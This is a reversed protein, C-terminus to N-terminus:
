GNHIVSYSALVIQPFGSNYTPEMFEEMILAARTKGSNILVSQAYGLVHRRIGEPNQSRLGQLTHSIKKWSANDNLLLRCLEISQNEEEEISETIKLRHEPKAAIVKDLVQLAQRVHGDANKIIANLVDVELTEKEKRVVKKVLSKMQSDSLLEVIFQTCRNKVTALLAQPETTCLIYIVHAPVEELMKLSANAAAKSWMHVEDMLYIRYNSDVPSFNSKKEIDRISDIGTISAANYEKFDNDSVGLANKIIRAFTTKGCGTPGTFLFVHPMKKSNGLMKELSSVIGENGIIASLTKPRHTHYLSM